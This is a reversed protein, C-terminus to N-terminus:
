FRGFEVRPIVWISRFKWRSGKRRLDRRAHFFGGGHAPSPVSPLTAITHSPLLFVALPMLVSLALASIWLQHRFAASQRRLALSLLGAAVILLSTRLAIGAITVLDPM